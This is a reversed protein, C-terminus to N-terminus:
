AREYRTLLERIDQDANLKLKERLRQKRKRVSDPSINSIQAIEKANLNILFYASLRLDASTLEPFDGSLRNFFDSHVEEFHIKFDEWQEDLNINQSITNKVSRVLNANKQDDLVNIQDLQQTVSNLLENKNVLHLAKAALERNKMELQQKLQKQELQNKTIQLNALQQEKELIINKQKLATNKVKFFYFLMIGFIFVAVIIVGGIIKNQKAKQHLLEIEKEKKDFEYKMQLESVWEKSKENLLSDKWMLSENYFVFAKDKEGQERSTNAMWNLAEIIGETNKVDMYSDLSRKLYIMAADYDGFQYLTKGYNLQYGSLYFTNSVKESLQLAQEYYDKAISFHNKQFYSNGMNNLVEAINTTDKLEQFIELARQFYESAEEPDGQDNKGIGLNICNIAIRKDEGRQESLELAKTFYEEAKSFNRNSSYIIGINNYISNLLEEIKYQNALDLSKFFYNLAEEDANYFMYLNGINIYGLVLTHNDGISEAQSVVNQLKQLALDYELSLSSNVADLLLSDLQGTDAGAKSNNSKTCSVTQALFCFAIIKILNFNGLSKIIPKIEM